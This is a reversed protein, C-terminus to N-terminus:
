RRCNSYKQFFLYGTTLKSSRSVKKKYLVIMARLHRKVDANSDPDYDQRKLTDETTDTLVEIEM